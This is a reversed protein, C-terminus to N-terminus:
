AMRTPLATAHRRTLLWAQIIFEIGGTAAYIALMNLKPNSATSMIIYAVGLLVSAGGALLMPWQKGLLARRRLATVLQAAGSLGAWVGFVVLVNAVTGTAAIGIALAAVTSVAANALLLQRASGNQGRADIGSAVADILPYLVLLVGVGVTLSDAVMAFVAAWVIAIVGRTIFTHLTRSENQAETTSM